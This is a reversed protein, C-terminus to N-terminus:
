FKGKVGKVATPFVVGVSKHISINHKTPIEVAFLYRIIEHM